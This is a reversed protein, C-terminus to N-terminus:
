LWLFSVPKIFISTDKSIQKTYVDQHIFNCRPPYFVNIYVHFNKGIKWRAFDSGRLFLVFIIKLRIKIIKLFGKTVSTNIDTSTGAIISLHLMSKTMRNCFSNFNDERFWNMAPFPIAGLSAVYERKKGKSLFCWDLFVLFLCINDFVLNDFNRRFIFLTSRLSHMTAIQLLRQM